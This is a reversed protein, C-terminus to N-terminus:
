MGHVQSWIETDVQFVVRIMLRAVSQRRLFLCLFDFSLLADVQCTALPSSVAQDNFGAARSAALPKVIIAQPTDHDFARICFIVGKYRVQVRIM